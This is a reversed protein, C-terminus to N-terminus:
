IPYGYLPPLRAWSELPPVTYRRAASTSLVTVSGNVARSIAPRAQRPGIYLAGVVVRQRVKRPRNQGARPIVDSLTYLPGILACRRRPRRLSGALLPAIM